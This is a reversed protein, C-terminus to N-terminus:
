YQDGNSKYRIGYVVSIEVNEISRLLNKYALLYRWVASSNTLKIEQSLHDLFLDEAKGYWNLLTNILDEQNILDPRIQKRM